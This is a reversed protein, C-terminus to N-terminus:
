ASCIPMFRRARRPNRRYAIVACCAGVLAPVAAALLGGAATLCVAGIMIMLLGGAALATLGRATRFIGPLVLGLAGLTECVGIFRLFAVPLASQAALADGPTILKMVGAFLFLAAM